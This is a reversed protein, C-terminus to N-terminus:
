TTARQSCRTSSIRRSPTAPKTAPQTAPPKAPQTATPDTLYDGLNHSPTQKTRKIIHFGFGTEVVDSIEDVKLKFAAEEFAPAM